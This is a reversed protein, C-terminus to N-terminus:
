HNLSVMQNQAAEKAIYPFFKVINDKFEPFVEAVQQVVNLGSNQQQDQTNKDDTTSNPTPTTTTNTPTIPNDAM